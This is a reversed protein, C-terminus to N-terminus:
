GTKRKFKADYPMLLLNMGKMALEGALILRPRDSYTAGRRALLDQAAKASHLVVINTGLMNLLIIPGYKNSWEQWLLYAHSKPMHLVHGLLPLGKPGPPLHSSSGPLTRGLLSVVLITAVGILTLM